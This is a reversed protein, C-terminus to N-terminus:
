PTVTVFCLLGQPLPSDTGGLLRMLNLHGTKVVFFGLAFVSVLSYPGNLLFFYVLWNDWFCLFDSHVIM